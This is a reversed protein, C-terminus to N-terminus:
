SSGITDIAIVQSERANINGSSNQGESPHQNSHLRTTYIYQSWTGHMCALNRMGQNKKKHFVTYTESSQYLTNKLNKM